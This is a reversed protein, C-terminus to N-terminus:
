EVNLPKYKIQLLYNIVSVILYLLTILAIAEVGAIALSGAVLALFIYRVKNQQWSLNKVKLSFMPLPTIMLASFFTIGALMAPISETFFQVAFYITGQHGAFALVFPLSAFFGANAPTPLGIFYHLQRTDLNFIALRLGGFVALFFATYPLLTNLFNQDLEQIAVFLYHYMIASSGLGFSILDALSDLQVGLESRGRLLRALMGDAFDLVACIGILIAANHPQGKIALVVAISGLFLNMLTVINPLHKM